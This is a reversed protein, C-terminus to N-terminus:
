SRILMALYRYNHESLADRPIIVYRGHKLTRFYMILVFYSSYSRKKLLRARLQRGSFLSYQWKECDPSIISVSNKHTRLGHAYIVRIYDLLLPISLSASIVWPWDILLLAMAVSLYFGSALLIFGPSTAIYSPM